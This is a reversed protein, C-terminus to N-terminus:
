KVHQLCQYNPSTFYGTRDTPLDLIMKEWSKAWEMDLKRRTWDASRDLRKVIPYDYGNYRGEPIELFVYTGSTLIGSHILPSFVIM